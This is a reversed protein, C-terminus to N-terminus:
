EAREWREMDIQRWRSGDDRLWVGLPGDKRDSGLRLVNGDLDEVQLEYGWAFNQPPNRIKAGSATYEAFLSDADEVNIWLWSGSQGQEDSCLFLNVDGRYVSAFIDTQWNRKFGCKDVYYEISAAVDAVHLIPNVIGFAARTTEPNNTTAM